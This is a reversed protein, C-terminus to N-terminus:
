FQDSSRDIGRIGNFFSYSCVSKSKGRSHIIRGIGSRTDGGKKTAIRRQGISNPRWWRFCRPKKCVRCKNDREISFFSFIEFIDFRLHIQIPSGKTVHGHKLFFRIDKRALYRFLSKKWDTRPSSLPFSAKKAEKDISIRLRQIPFVSLQYFLYTPMPSPTQRVSKVIKMFKNQFHFKKLCLFISPLLRSHWMQNKCRWTIKLM